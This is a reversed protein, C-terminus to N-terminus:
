PYRAQAIYDHNRELYYISPKSALDPIQVQSTSSFTSITEEPYKTNPSRCAQRGLGPPTNAAKGNSNAQKKNGWCVVTPVRAHVTSLLPSVATASQVDLGLPKNIFTEVLPRLDYVGSLLVVERYNSAVSSPSYAKDLDGPTLTTWM